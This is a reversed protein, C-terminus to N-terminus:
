RRRWLGRYFPCPFVCMNPLHKWYEHEWVPGSVQLEVKEQYAKPVLVMGMAREETKGLPTTVTEYASSLIINGQM